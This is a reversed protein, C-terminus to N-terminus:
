RHLPGEMRELLDSATVYDVGIELGREEARIKFPQASERKRREEIGLRICENVMEKFTAGERNIEEQINGAVDEDLTITTRM